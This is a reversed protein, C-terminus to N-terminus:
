IYMFPFGDKHRRVKNFYFYIFCHFLNQRTIFLRPRSAAFYIAVLVSTFIVTKTYVLVTLYNLVFIIM